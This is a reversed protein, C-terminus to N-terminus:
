RMGGWPVLSVREVDSRMDGWGRCSNGSRWKFIAAGIRIRLGVATPDRRGAPAVFVWRLGTVEIHAPRPDALALHLPM